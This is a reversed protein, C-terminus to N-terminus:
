TINGQLLILLGQQEVQEIAQGQSDLVDIYILEREQTTLM